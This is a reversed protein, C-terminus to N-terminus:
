WPTCFSMPHPAAEEEEADEAEVVDTPVAEDTTEIAPVATPEAAPVSEEQVDLSTMDGGACAVLASCALVLAAASVASFRNFM